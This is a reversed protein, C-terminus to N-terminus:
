SGNRVQREFNVIDDASYINGTEKSVQSVANKMLSSIEETSKLANVQDKIKNAADSLEAPLPNTEKARMNSLINAIDKTLADPQSFPRNNNM